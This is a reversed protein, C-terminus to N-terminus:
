SKPPAALPVSIWAKLAKGYAKAVDREDGEAGRGSRPPFGGGLFPGGRGMGGGPPLSQPPAGTEDRDRKRRKPQTTDLGLAITKGPQTDIAHPSEVGFLLPVKLEIVLAGGEEGVAAEIPRAESIRIRGVDAAERELVELEAGAISLGLSKTTSSDGTDPLVQQESGLRGVPFRIGFTRADKGTADLYISLGVALLQKKVAEDSTKLCVYLFSADNQLAVSIPLTAFPVLKGSWEDAVGDVVVDARRWASAM